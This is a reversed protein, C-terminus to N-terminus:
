SPRASSSPITRSPASAREAFLVGAVAAAATLAIWGFTVAFLAVMAWQLVSVGGVSVVAIMERSAYVTLALGGGFTVLRALATRVTPWGRRRERTYRRLNQAPMPVEAFPPVSTAHRTTM